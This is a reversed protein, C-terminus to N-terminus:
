KCTMPGLVPKGLKVLTIGEPEGLGTGHARFGHKTLIHAHICLIYGGWAHVAGARHGRLGGASFVAHQENSTIM